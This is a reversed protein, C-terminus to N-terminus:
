DRDDDEDHDREEEGGESGSGFTLTLGKILTDTETPSLRAKAHLFLYDRPPMEGERVTEASEDAEEQSQPWESYNLKDRGEDVHNQVVWSFPAINSYWPWETENSHCDFCARVVLTRTAPSDWPPEGRIPPNARDHGYPILQIGGAVMFGVALGLFSLRKIM